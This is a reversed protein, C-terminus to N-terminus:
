RLTPSLSHNWPKRLEFLSKPTKSHTRAPSKELKLEIKGLEYFLHFIKKKYYLGTTPQMELSKGIRYLISLSPNKFDRSKM